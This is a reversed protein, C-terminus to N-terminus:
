NAMHPDVPKSERPKCIGIKLCNIPNKIKEKAKNESMINENLDEFASSLDKSIEKISFIKSWLGNNSEM